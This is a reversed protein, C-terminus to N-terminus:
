YLGLIAPVSERQGFSTLQDLLPPRRPVKSHSLRWAAQEILIVELKSAFTASQSGPKMLIKCSNYDQGRSQFVVKFIFATIAIKWCLRMYKLANNKELEPSVTRIQGMPKVRKQIKDGPNSFLSVNFQQDQIKGVIKVYININSFQWLLM